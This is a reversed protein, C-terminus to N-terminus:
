SASMAAVRSLKAKKSAKGLRGGQEDDGCDSSAADPKTRKARQAVEGRQAVANVKKVTRVRGDEIISHKSHKGLHACDIKHVRKVLVYEGETGVWPM